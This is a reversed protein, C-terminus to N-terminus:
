YDGRQGKVAALLKQVDYGVGDRLVIEENEIDDIRTAPDGRVM